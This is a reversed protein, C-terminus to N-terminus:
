NLTDIFEKAYSDRNGDKSAGFQYMEDLIVMGGAASEL